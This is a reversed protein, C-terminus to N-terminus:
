TRPATGAARRRSGFMLVPGVEPDRQVGLVLEVGGPVQEAVLVRDLKAGPRANALNQALRTYARACSTTARRHRPHRRRHRVQADGRRRALKLVVPYGIAKAPACRTTSTRRWSRARRGSATSACCNRPSPRTSCRCGTPPPKGRQSAFRDRARRAEAGRGARDGTRRRACRAMAGPRPRRTRLAKDVEQLVPLHTLETRFERTHDTFMYSIM